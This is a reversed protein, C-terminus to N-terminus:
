NENNEGRLKSLLLDSAQNINGKTQHHNLFGEKLLSALHEYANTSETKLNTLTPECIEDLTKAVVVKKALEAKKKKTISGGEV